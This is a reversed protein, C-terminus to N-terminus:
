APLGPMTRRLESWGIEDLPHPALPWVKLLLGPGPHPRAPCKEVLLQTVQVDDGYAGAKTLADLVNRALKDVDGANHWIAPANTTPAGGLFEARTAAAPVALFAVLEVDVAGAYPLEWTDLLTTGRRRAIDRRVQEAMLARWRKSQPTDQNNLLSGKTRPNGPVWVETIIM